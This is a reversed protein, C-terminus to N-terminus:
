IAKKALNVGESGAAKADGTAQGFSAAINGVQVGAWSLTALWFTPLVIFMAGMVFNLLMDSETNNLGMVPNFNQHPANPGYLADIVTSDIWRALQFWFDIFFLAFQVFTVTMVAKLSYTSFVLILPICIVLAMKLFAMVMPLAQRVVDMAPFYALSGVTLGAGAAIRAAQNYGNVGIQGGYDTYAAGQTMRQQRPSVVDRIVSDNVEDQNLFSAWKGMKVLLTPEVQALLKARLGTSGTTWWEKCTPYGGGSDVRALGADRTENYPFATRPTSSHFADYYGSTNVLYSSGIWSVDNLEDLGLKPRDMFMKARSPGYCDHTFDAVEQTLVPDNIRTANVDMRMQRLDVGCPISAVAAGNIAKSLAHIMAWWIPVKASQGNLTTFSSGWGTEGPKPVSIQCQKSRSDDFQLTSLDISKMPLAAFLIVFIAVFIRNEIRLASLVGKNGEDAGEGRARLWEQGVIALFPLAFLGTDALTDWIGNNILWGVLTLYYELYDTTYLT